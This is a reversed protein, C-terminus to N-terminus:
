DRTNGGAHFTLDAGSAPAEHTQPCEPETIGHLVIMGWAAGLIFMVLHDM